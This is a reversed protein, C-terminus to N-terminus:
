PKLSCFGSSPDLSNAIEVLNSNKRLEESTYEIAYPDQKIAFLMFSYNNSLAEKHKQDLNRFEDFDIKWDHNELYILNPFFFSLVNLENKNM